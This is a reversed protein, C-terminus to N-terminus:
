EIWFGDRLDRVFEGFRSSIVQHIYVFVTKLAAEPATGSKVVGIEHGQEVEVRCTETECAGDDPAYATARLSKCQQCV